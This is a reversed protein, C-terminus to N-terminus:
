LFFLFQLIKVEESVEKWSEAMNSNSRARRNNTEGSLTLHVQKPEEKGGDQKKLVADADVESSSPTNSGCSSRDVKKKNRAEDSNHVGNSSLPQFKNSKDGVVKGNASEDSDSSSAPLSKSSPHQARTAESQGPGMDQQDIGVAPELMDVKDEKRNDPAQNKDAIPITATSPPAFAFGAQLPPYIPLLGQTAWWASAAAVTAAAIAATSPYPNMHRASVGGNASESSSDVSADLGASPWYSAAVTAAAHVAPNQLLTSVILNSFTSSINLFSRYSDQVSSYQTFPPFVPFHQHVSSTGSNANIESTPNAAPNLSPKAYAHTGDQGPIRLAGDGGDNKKMFDIPVHKAYSEDGLLNNGLLGRQDAHMSKDAEKDHASIMRSSMCSDTLEGNRHNANVTDNGSTDGNVDISMSDLPIKDKMEKQLPMLENYACISSSGKAPSSSSGAPADQFFNLVESCGGDESNYKLGHVQDFLSLIFACFFSLFSISLGAMQSATSPM